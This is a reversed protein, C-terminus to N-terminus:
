EEPMGAKRLGAFFTEEALAQPKAGLANARKFNAVTAYRNDGSLRRAEVLEATAGESNGALAYAAALWAHPGALRPNASRAQELWSIADDIRAKLLHVMGIRWYWNPLHRDRPSLRIAQEQAPIAEEIAGALFKCQGLAAVATVCNRDLAVAREYAPIAADFRGQARLLQARALHAVQDRPSAALVDSILANGRELDAAPADSMQELVRATLTRALLGRAQISASDLALASECFSIAEAFSERTSDQNYAARARLIYDFADPKESPRAAELKVLELDLAIAIRGTVEDQLWLLDQALLDFREAWIHSDTEADILQANCRIRDGSRRISGELVYRVKLERGIQRIDISKNRYTFATTRSIVVMGALRSLDTTLDETIGDAFYQQEPDNGLNTFPLVVISLRPVIPQPLLPVAPVDPALLNTVARLRVAYVRIPRAINKLQQQGMDEFALDLKGAADGRVRASVCIGGPEALAELRAAVNVADGFIDYDEVVVDGQHIGIRFEIRQDAPAAANRETMAAQVVAACRLADVVSAFEALVGDGTTKVIRGHHERIKPDILEVLHAKVREHTGEEDSGMLRSYGVVDAALIAALRRTATTTAM